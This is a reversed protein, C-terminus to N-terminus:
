GGHEKMALSHMPYGCFTDLNQPYGPWHGAETCLKLRSLAGRYEKQGIELSLIDIPYTVALYPPFKEVFILVFNSFEQGIIAMIDIYYAAQRAYGYNMISKNVSDLDARECTKIDCLTNGSAPIADLRAKRLLGDNDHAFVCAEKRSGELLKKAIPHQYVSHIMSTISISEELTIITKGENEKKWEKGPVTVFNMGEPRVAINGNMTDPELLARHLLSGFRQAPTPDPEPLDKRARYHAPTFPPTIYTLDSNAIGESSRYASEDMSVIERRPQAISM